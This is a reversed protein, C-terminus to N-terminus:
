HLSERRFTGGIPVAIPFIAALPPVVPPVIVVCLLPACCCAAVRLLARCVAVCPMCRHIDVCILLSCWIVYQCLAISIGTICPLVHHYMCVYRYMTICLVYSHSPYGHVRSLDWSFRLSLAPPTLPHPPPAQQHAPDRAHGAIHSQICYRERPVSLSFNSDSPIHLTCSDRYTYDAYLLLSKHFLVYLIYLHCLCLTSFLHLM